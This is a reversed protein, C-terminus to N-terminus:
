FIHKSKELSFPLVLYILKRENLHISRAGRPLMDRVGPQFWQEKYYFLIWQRISIFYVTFKSKLSWWLSGTEQMLREEDSVSQLPLHLGKLDHEHTSSAPVNIHRRALANARTYVPSLCGSPVQHFCSFLFVNVCRYYLIM